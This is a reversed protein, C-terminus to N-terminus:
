IKESAKKAINRLDDLTVGKGYVSIKELINGKTFVIGYVDLDLDGQFWYVFEQDGVDQPPYIKYENLTGNEDVLGIGFNVYENIVALQIKEEETGTLFKTSTNIKGDVIPFKLIVQSVDYFNEDRVHTPDYFGTNVGYRSYYGAELGEAIYSKSVYNTNFEYDETLEIQETIITNQDFDDITLALASIDGQFYGNQICGSVLVLMALPLLLILQKM